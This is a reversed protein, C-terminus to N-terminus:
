TVFLIHVQIVTQKDESERYLKVNSWDNIKAQEKAHKIWDEQTGEPTFQYSPVLATIIIENLNNKYTSYETQRM